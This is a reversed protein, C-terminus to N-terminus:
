CDGNKYERTISYLINNRAITFKIKTWMCQLGAANQLGYFINKQTNLWSPNRCENFVSFTFRPPDRVVELALRLYLEGQLVKEGSFYRLPAVGYLAKPEVCFVRWAVQVYQCKHGGWAILVVEPRSWNIWKCFGHHIRPSFTAVVQFVQKVKDIRQPVFCRM